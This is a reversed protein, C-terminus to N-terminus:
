GIKIVRTRALWDPLSAGEPHGLAMLFGAGLSLFSVVYATCRVMSQWLSIPRGTDVHVVHLRFVAQGPTSGLAAWCGTFYALWVLLAPVEYSLKLGLAVGLGFGVSLIGSLLLDIVLAMGREVVSAPRVLAAPPLAAPPGATPWYGPDSAAPGVTADADFRGQPPETPRWSEVHGGTSGYAIESSQYPGGVTSSEFPTESWQDPVYSPSPAQSSPWDAGSPGRVTWPDTAGAQPGYGAGAGGRAGAVGPGGSPLASGWESLLPCQDLTASQWAREFLRATTEGWDDALVRRLLRYRNSDMQLEGQEFYAEGASASRVEENSWGLMEALMIAGAFRDGASEWIGASAARHAYGPSAASVPLPRPMMPAFLQEVDVLAAIADGASIGQESAFAPLIVNPGSIDCHAVGSAEMAALMDTMARALILSHQSSLPLRQVVIDFWTPGVIWPMLVAYILDPFYQLLAAHRQPVIAIRDCVELGPLRSFTRLQDSLDSLSPQRYAPAFVKLARMGVSSELCYVTGQRGEQGYPVQPASPHAAVRLPMGDIELSDGVRPQFAM